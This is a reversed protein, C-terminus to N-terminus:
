FKEKLMKLYENIELSATRESGRGPGAPTPSPLPPRTPPPEAPPTGTPKPLPTTPPGESLRGPGPRTETM